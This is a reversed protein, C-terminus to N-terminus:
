RPLGSRWGFLRPSGCPLAGRDGGTAVPRPVRSPTGRCHQRAFRRVASRPRIMRSSCGIAASGREYRQGPHPKGTPHFDGRDNGSWAVAVTILRSSKL